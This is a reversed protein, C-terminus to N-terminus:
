EEAIGPSHPAPRSRGPLPSPYRAAPTRRGDIALTIPRGKSGDSGSQARRARGPSSSPTSALSSSLSSARDDGQSRAAGRVAQGASLESLLISPGSCV